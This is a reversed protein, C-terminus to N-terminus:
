HLEKEREKPLPSPLSNIIAEAWHLLAETESLSEAYFHFIL